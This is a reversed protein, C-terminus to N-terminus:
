DEDVDGTSSADVAASTSTTDAASEASRCRELFTAVDEPMRFHRPAVGRPMEEAEYGTQWRLCHQIEWAEGELGLELELGPWRRKQGQRYGDGGDNGGYGGSLAGRGGGGDGGSEGGGGTSQDHPLVPTSHLLDESPPSQSVAHRSAPMIQTPRGSPAFVDVHM